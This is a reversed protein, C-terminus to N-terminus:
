PILIPYQSTFFFVHETWGQLGQLANHVRLILKQILPFWHNPCSQNPVQSLIGRLQKPISTKKQWVEVGLPQNFVRISPRDDNQM